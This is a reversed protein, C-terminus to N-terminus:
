CREHVDAVDTLNWASFVVAGKLYSAPHCTGLPAHSNSSRGTVVAKRSAKVCTAGQARKCPFRGREPRWTSISPNPNDNLDTQEELLLCLLKSDELDPKLKLM